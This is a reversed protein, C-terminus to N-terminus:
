DDVSFWLSYALWIAIAYCGLSIIFKVKPRVAHAYSVRTIDDPHYRLKFRDPVITSRWIKKGGLRANSEIDSRYIHDVGNITYKIAFDSDQNLYFDNGEREFLSDPEVEVVRAPASHWSRTVLPVVVFKYVPYSAAFVLGILKLTYATDM